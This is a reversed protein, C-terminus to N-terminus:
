KSFMEHIPDFMDLGYATGVWIIGDTGIALSLIQNNSIGSDSDSNKQYRIFNRTTPDYRDLGGGNTGIWAVGNSAIAIAEIYDSSITQPDNLQSRFHTFEGTERSYINVGGGLTGIWLSGDPAEALATVSSHTLSNQDDPDNKYVIFNQGDFKNLGDETGLWVYGYRDQLM